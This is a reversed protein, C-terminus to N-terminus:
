FNLAFTMGPALSYGTGTQVAQVSPYFSPELSYKNVDRNYLNKVKSVKAADVCAWIDVIIESLGAACILLVQRKAAKEDKFVISGSADKLYKGSADKEVNDLLKYAEYYGFGSLATSAAFFGIGRGTERAIVQGLGPVVFSAFANWGPSYPDTDAKVYGKTSYISKLENYKMGPRVQASAASMGVVTLIIAFLVKKM